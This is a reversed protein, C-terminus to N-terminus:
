PRRLSTAKSQPSDRCSGAAAEPCSRVHGSCRRCPQGPGGGCGSRGPLLGGADGSPHSCDWCPRPCLTGAPAEWGPKLGGGRSPLLAADRVAMSERRPSDHTGLFTKETTHRPKGPFCCNGPCSDRGGERGSALRQKPCAQPLVRVSLSLSGQAWPPCLGPVAASRGHVHGSHGVSCDPAGCAAGAGPPYPYVRPM